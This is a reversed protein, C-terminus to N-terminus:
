LPSIRGDCLVLHSELVRDSRSFPTLYCLRMNKENNSKKSVAPIRPERRMPSPNLTALARSDAMQSSSFALPELDFSQTANPRLRRAFFALLEKAAFSDPRPVFWKLVPRSPWLPRDGM